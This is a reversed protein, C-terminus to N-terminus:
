PSLGEAAPGAQAFRVASSLLAARLAAIIQESECPKDLYADCDSSGSGGGGWATAGRLGTLMVIPTDRTRVEARLRRATEPGDMVPMWHDLLVVDPALALARDLAIAGNEAEVTRFGAQQLIMVCIERTDEDDDAVLVLPCYTDGSNGSPM